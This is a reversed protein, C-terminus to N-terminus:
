VEPLLLDLWLIFPISAVVLGVKFVCWGLRTM